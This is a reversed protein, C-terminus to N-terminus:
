GNATAAWQAQRERPAPSADPSSAAPSSSVDREVRAYDAASPAPLGAWAAFDALSPAGGVHTRHLEFQAAQWQSDGGITSAADVFGANRVMQEVAATFAGYPYAFDSVPHGLLQELAAKGGVIEAQAIPAPVAALDVHHMTHAGVVLGAADVSKVQTASMYGPRGIFGSVVYDTGVYGYRALVPAAQTAFSVYGDDFTLVVPHSPLGARGAMAKVLTALSIPHAGESHLLAMQSAFLSPSTSLNYLLHDRTDAPVDLIYHYMLIPVDLHSGPPSNASVTAPAAETTAMGTPSTAVAPGGGLEMLQLSSSSPSMPVPGAVAVGTRSPTLSASNAQATLLAGAVFVALAAAGRAARARNTPRTSPTM